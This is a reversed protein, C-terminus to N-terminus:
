DEPDIRRNLDRLFEPDDDPGTGGETDGEGEDPGPAPEGGEPDPMVPITPESDPDFGGEAVLRDQLEADYAATIAAYNFLLLSGEDDEAIVNMQNTTEEEGEIELDEHIVLHARAAGALDIEEDTAPTEGGLGRLLELAEEYSVGDFGLLPNQEIAAAAILLQEEEGGTPAAVVVGQQLANPDIEWGEGLPLVVGEGAFVGDVIEPQEAEPAAEGEAQEDPGPTELGADEPQDAGDGCAVLLAAAAVCAALRIRHM